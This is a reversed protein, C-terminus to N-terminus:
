RLEADLKERNLKHLHAIIVAEFMQTHYKNRSALEREHTGQLQPYLSVTHEMLDRKNRIQPLATKIDKQTKYSVMCGLHMDVYEKLRDLLSLLAETFHSLPPVKVVIATVRHTSAYEHYAKIIRDRKEASWAEKFSLTNWAVLKNDALIAVGSSRTGISIGLVVM